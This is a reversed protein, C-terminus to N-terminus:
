LLLCYKFALFYLYIVHHHQLVIVVFHTRCEAYATIYIGRRQNETHGTDLKKKTYNPIANCINNVDYIILYYCLLFFVFNAIIGLFM